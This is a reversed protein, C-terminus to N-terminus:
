WRMILQNDKIEFGSLRKLFSMGLLSIDMQADIVAAPVNEVVNDGIEIESLMIPAVRAIGNATKARGTFKLEELDIGLKEADTRSLAVLSAGTDVLFHVGEGNIAADVFYHGGAGANLVLEDGDGSSESQEDVEEPEDRYEPEEEEQQDDPEEAPASVKVIKRKPAEASSSQQAPPAGMNMTFQDMGVVAVVTLAIVIAVNRLMTSLM